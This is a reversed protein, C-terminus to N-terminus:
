KWFESFDARPNYPPQGFLEIWRKGKGLITNIPIGAECLPCVAKKVDYQVMNVRMLPFFQPVGLSETTQGGREAISLAAIVEGDVQKVCVAKGERITTGNNVIDEVIIFPKGQYAVHFKEPIVHVKKGAVDTELETRAPFFTKFPFEEELVAAITPAFCIAGYAPGIVGIMTHEAKIQLGSKVANRAVQNLLNVFNRAGILSFKEKDIYAPGHTGAKYVFHDNDILAGSEALAKQIDKEM